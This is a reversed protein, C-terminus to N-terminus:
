LGERADARYECLHWSMNLPPMYPCSSHTIGPHWLHLSSSLPCVIVTTLVPAFTKRQHFFTAWNSPFTNLLNKGCGLPNSFPTVPGAYRRPFWGRRRREAGGLQRWGGQLINQTSRASYLNVTVKCRQGDRPQWTSQQEAPDPSTSVISPSASCGM